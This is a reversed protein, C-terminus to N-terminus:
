ENTEGLKFSVELALETATFNNSAGHRLAVGSATVKVGRGIADNAQQLSSYDGGGDIETDSNIKIRQGSTLIIFNAPVKISKVRGEFEDNGLPKGDRLNITTLDSFDKFKLLATGDGALEVTGTTNKSDEHQQDFSLEHTLAGTIGEGLNYNAEPLSKDIRINMFNIGITYNRNFQGGESTSGQFSGAGGHKGDIAISSGEALGDIVYEDTRVYSSTNQSTSINGERLASFKVSVIHSRDRDPFEIFDGDAGYYIYKIEAYMNRQADPGKDIERTFSTTHEGTTDNYSYTDQYPVKFADDLSSFVGYSQDSLSEVIIQSAAQLDEESLSSDEDLANLTCAGLVWAALFITVSNTKM